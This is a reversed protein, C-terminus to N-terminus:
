FITLIIAGVVLDRWDLAPIFARPRVVMFGVASLPIGSCAVLCQWRWSRLRLGLASWPVGLLQVMWVASLLLPLGILVFWYIPPIQKIPMIVSLIRLLPVLVLVLLAQRRPAHGLWAY